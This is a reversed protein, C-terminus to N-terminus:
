LKAREEVSLNLLPDNQGESTIYGGAYAVYGAIASKVGTPDYVAFFANSTAQSGAVVGSVVADKAAQIKERADQAAKWLSYVTALVGLVLLLTLPKM